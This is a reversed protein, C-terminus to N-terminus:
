PDVGLVTQSPKDPLDDADRFDIGRWARLSAGDEKIRIESVSPAFQLLRKNFTQDRVAPVPQAKCWDVYAGYLQTKRVLGPEEIPHGNLDYVGNRVVCRAELFSFVSDSLKRYKLRTEETSGARCFTKSELLGPIAKLCRNFLGALESPHTIKALKNLDLRPGEFQNPFDVIVWRRYFADSDDETLPVQNMSFFLKASNEFDFSNAHKFQVRIRDGGTLAKFTSTRTLGRSPLDACINARKQYLSAGSFRDADLDQLSVASVNESGLFAKVLGLYTSKGNSGGGVLAFAKQIPYGPILTYAIMEYALEVDASTFVEEIFLDILPCEAKPNYAFPLQRFFVAEPAHAKWEGTTVDIIGNMLNVYRTGDLAAAREFPTSREVHGLVENVVHITAREGLARESINQILLRADPLYVGDQYRYIQHTDSLTVIRFRELVFRAVADAIETAGDEKSVLLDEFRIGDLDLSAVAPIGDTDNENV